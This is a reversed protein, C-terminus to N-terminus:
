AGCGSSTVIKVHDGSADYITTWDGEYYRGTLLIEMKGDGNLDFVGGVKYV